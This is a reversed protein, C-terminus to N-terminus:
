NEQSDLEEIERYLNVACNHFGDWFPYEEGGFDMCRDGQDIYKSILDLVKEKEVM